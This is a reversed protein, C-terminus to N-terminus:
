LLTLISIGMIMLIVIPLFVLATGIWGIIVGAIALGRGGTNERSIQGLAVHGMIAGVPSLFGFIFLSVISVVMSAVALGNTPPKQIFQQNYVTQPPAQYGGQYPQQGYPMVGPQGVQPAQMTQQAQPFPMPPSQPAQGVYGPQPSAPIPAYQGNTNESQYTPSYPNQSPTQEAGQEEHPPYSM